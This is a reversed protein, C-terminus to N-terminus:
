ISDQLKCSRYEQMSLVSHKKISEHVKKKKLKKLYSRKIMEPVIYASAYCSYKESPAFDYKRIKKLFFSFFFPGRRMKKGREMEM